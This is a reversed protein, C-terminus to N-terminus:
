SPPSRDSDLPPADSGSGDSADEDDAKQKKKAESRHKQKAKQKQLKAIKLSIKALPGNALVDLRQKLLKRAEKRNDALGRFRQTEIRIGSPRHFLQVASATKNIKQGGAGGGKIFREELDSELLEIPVKKRPKSDDTSFHRRAILQCTMPHLMSMSLYPMPLMTMRPCRFLLRQLMKKSRYPYAKISPDRPSM